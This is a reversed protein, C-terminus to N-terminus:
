KPKNIFFWPLSLNATLSILSFLLSEYPTELHISFITQGGAEYGEVLIGQPPKQGQNCKFLGENSM